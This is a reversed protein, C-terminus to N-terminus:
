AKAPEAATNLAELAKRVDEFPVDHPLRGSAASLAALAGAAQGMSVSPGSIRYSAHAYFDGSACRGAMLLGDVDKAILARLPIDYPKVKVGGHSLGRDEGGRLSHIDVNFTVRCVADAHQAGAKLDDLTVRYRGHIRRGERVGIQEPTAVLQVGAWPGGFARLAAAAKQVEARARVTAETVQRADIASVGYEHNIMLALLNGRVQFITPRGYSPEFGTKAFAKLTAEKCTTHQGTGQYFSIHEKVDEARPVLMLAMFTMPQTLGTGAEGLDFGCGARAALDGDGTADIFVKARWAERGSKSETVVTTLRNKEDRGAAVVRTFLRVGVKAEGCLDELMVKMAEVDYTYNVLSKGIRAGRRELERTLRSGIGPQNMHFLWTLLGATWVGGLCGHVEILRVKAGGAAAALAAGIGAPGAGAILVDVDEVVPVDRAAERITKVPPAAAPGASAAGSGGATPADGAWAQQVALPLFGLGAIGTTLFDRRSTM